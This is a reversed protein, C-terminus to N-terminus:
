KKCIKLKAVSKTSYTQFKTNEKIPKMYNKVNALRKGNTAKQKKQGKSQM